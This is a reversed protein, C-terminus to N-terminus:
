KLEFQSSAVLKRGFYITVKYLGPESNHPIIIKRCFNGTTFKDGIKNKYLPLRDKDNDLYIQLNVFNGPKLYDANVYGCAYLEPTSVPFSNGCSADGNEIPNDVACIKFKSITTEKYALDSDHV